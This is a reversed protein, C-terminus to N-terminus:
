TDELTTKTYKKIGSFGTKMESNRHTLAPEAFKDRSRHLKQQKSNITVLSCFFSFQVVVVLTEDDDWYLLESISIPDLLSQSVMWNRITLDSAYPANKRHSAYKNGFSPM